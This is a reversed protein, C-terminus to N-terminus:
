ASVTRLAEMGPLIAALKAELEELATAIRDFDRERALQELTWCAEYVAPAAFNGVSGKLSHAAAALAEADRSCVAQRIAELRQPCDKLFIDVLEQLLAPDDGTHALAAGRDFGPIVSGRGAAGMVSEIADFLARSQIPKTLYADMGAALCKERDGKMARATMAIIPLHKGSKRERERISATAELGGMVPMQVDMLALDFSERDIAQIAESGNPAVTVDHGRKGLMTVALKQNVPNDEVLLIRYTRRAPNTGDPFVDELEARKLRISPTELVAFRASFHFTSGKGVESEVWIRGGMLDVLRTSITLGLGSGGYKRTTSGDAQAFPEFILDLKDEPIGVGTDKVSFRLVAEGRMCSECRVALVVQGRSTFKIANGILNMLIQRLRDPDGQLLDPVSSDVEFLLDLGKERARLALLKMVEAIVDRLRLETPVLDLKGAEIKSFDLIDNIITLLSEASSRVMELYGRQEPLVATELALETMGLIGNMPTRIEHSMNALFESKARTAAEAREGALLLKSNSARLESTRREVEDRVHDKLSQLESSKSHLDTLLDNCVDALEGLTISAAEPIRASYDRERSARSLVIVLERAARVFPKQVIVGVAAGAVLVAAAALLAPGLERPSAAEHPAMHVRAAFAAWALLAVTASTLAAQVAARRRVVRKELPILSNKQKVQPGISGSGFSEESGRSGRAM